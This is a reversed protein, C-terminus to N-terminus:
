RRQEGATRRVARLVAAAIALGLAAVAGSMLLMPMVQRLQVLFGYNLLRRTYYTNLWFAILSYAVRGWCIALLGWHMTLLLIGFAILKKVVELRLVYDSHGKVYILNLNVMIVCDWVYALCLVQLLPVCGMWEDGLLAQIMPGALGCMGLVLPFVVLASM